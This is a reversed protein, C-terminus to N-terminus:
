SFHALLKEHDIIIISRKEKKIIGDKILLAIKRSLTEERINLIEAMKVQKISSLTSENEYLFKAIKANIDITVNNNIFNELYKIKMSLSKIFIIAIEKKFLFKEKFQEYDIMVIESDSEFSCNALFPVESYNSIEAIFSPAHITHIVVEKDKADHKYLKVIGSRLVHLYKSEDGKYFLIQGKTFKKTHSIEELEKLENAELSSFIYFDKLSM